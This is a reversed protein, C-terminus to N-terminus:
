YKILSYIPYKLKDSAKFSEIEILFCLGVINGKLREVLKIAASVTGGTALLDDVILVNEGEKISEIHMDLASAGYELPHYERVIEGPLKGKKRAMSLGTNLAIALPAAFLFGRSEIGIIKDIKPYITKDKYQEAMESIAAQFITKDEILPSLDQFVVGDKPFDKVEKIFQKYDIM